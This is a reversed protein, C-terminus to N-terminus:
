PASGSSRRSRPRWRPTTMAWRRYPVPSRHPDVPAVPWRTSCNSSGNPSSRLRPRRWYSVSWAIGQGRRCSSPATDPLAVTGAVSRRLCDFEIIQRPMDAVVRTIARHREPSCGAEADAPLFRTGRPAASMPHRQAGRHLLAAIAVGPVVPLARVPPRIGPRFRLWAISAYGGRLLCLARRAPGLGVVTPDVSFLQHIGAGTLAPIALFFSLRTSTVPGGGGPPGRLDNSRIPSVRPDASASVPGIQSRM